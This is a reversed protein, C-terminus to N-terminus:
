ANLCRCSTCYSPDVLRQALMCELVCTRRVESGGAIWLCVRAWHGCALMVVLSPLSKRTKVERVWRRLGLGAFSLDM